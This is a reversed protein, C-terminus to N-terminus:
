GHKTEPDLTPPSPPNIVPASTANASPWLSVKPVKLFDLPDFNTHSDPQENQTHGAVFNLTEDHKKTSLPLKSGSVFLLDEHPKFFEIETSAPDWELEYEETIEKLLKLKTKPSPACVSLLEILQM